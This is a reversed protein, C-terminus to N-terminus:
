SSSFEGTALDITEFGWLNLDNERVTSKLCVCVCGGVGVGVGVCLCMSGRVCISTGVGLANIWLWELLTQIKRM